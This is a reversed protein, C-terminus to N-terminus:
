QQMGPWTTLANVPHNCHKIRGGPPASPLLTTTVLRSVSFITGSSIRASTVACSCCHRSVAAASRWSEGGAPAEQDAGGLRSAVLGAAGASSTSAAAMSATWRNADCCVNQRM